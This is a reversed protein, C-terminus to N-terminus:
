SVVSYQHVLLYRRKSGAPTFGTPEITFGDCHGTAEQTHAQTYKQVHSIDSCIFLVYGSLILAASDLEFIVWLGTLADDIEAFVVSAAVCTCVCVCLFFYLWYFYFICAIRVLLATYSVALM